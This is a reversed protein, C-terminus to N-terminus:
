LVLIKSPYEKLLIETFCKGIAGYGVLGIKRPITVKTAFCALPAQFLDNHHRVNRM